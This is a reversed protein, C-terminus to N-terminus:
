LVRYTPLSRSTGSKLKHRSFRCTAFTKRRCPSLKPCAQGRREDRTARTGNSKGRYTRRGILASTMSPFKYVRGSLSDDFGMTFNSIDLDRQRSFKTLIRIM